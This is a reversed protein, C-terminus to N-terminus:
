VKERTETVSFDRVESKILKTKRFWLEFNELIEQLDCRFCKRSEWSFDNSFNTPKNASFFVYSLKPIQHLFIAIVHTMVIVLLKASATLSDNRDATLIAYTKSGAIFLPVKTNPKCLKM